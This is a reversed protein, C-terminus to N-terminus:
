RDTGEGWNVEENEDSEEEDELEDEEMNKKAKRKKKSKTSRIRKYKTHYQVDFNQQVESVQVETDFM